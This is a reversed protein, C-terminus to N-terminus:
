VTYGADLTSPTSLGGRVMEEQSELLADKPNKVHPKINGTSWGRM